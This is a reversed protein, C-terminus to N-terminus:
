CLAHSLLCAMPSTMTLSHGCFFCDVHEKIRLAFTNTVLYGNAIVWREKVAVFRLLESLGGVFLTEKIITLSM